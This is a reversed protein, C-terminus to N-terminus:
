PAELRTRLEPPLDALRAHQSLQLARVYAVVAWRDAPALRSAYSYMQGYGRTIVDFIYGDAVRRLRPQHFTPPAPFGREVVAGDGAGARGHCPSCFADFRQRGRALLAADVPLPIPGYAPAPAPALEPRVAGRPARVPGPSAPVPGLARPDDLHGRAVTGPVLPRAAQDDPFVPSAGLTAVRPQERMRECACLPAGLCFLLAM